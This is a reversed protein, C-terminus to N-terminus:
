KQFFVCLKEDNKGGLLPTLGRDCLQFFTIQTEADEQVVPMEIPYWKFGGVLPNFLQLDYFNANKM